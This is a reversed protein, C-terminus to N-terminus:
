PRPERPDPDVPPARAPRFRERRTRQASTHESARRIRLRADVIRAVVAAFTGETLEGLVLRLRAAVEYYLTERSDAATTPDPM